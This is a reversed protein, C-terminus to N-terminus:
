IGNETWSALLIIASLIQEFPAELSNKIGKFSKKNKETKNQRYKVKKYSFQLQM